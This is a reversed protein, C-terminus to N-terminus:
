IWGGDLRITQGTLYSPAEAISYLMKAAEKPNGMRDAPIGSILDAKEEESFCANMQTDFMGLSLANVQINSPALEKALAKTFAIVGGKSASYAVECSAGVEGWVSTVSIIKGSKKTIMHPLIEKTSYFLANFNTNMISHWQGLSMDTLLGVYSIAANHIICDITGFTDLTKQTIKKWFDPDGADGTVALVGIGQSALQQRSKELALPTHCCNIVVQWGHRGFYEATAYGIGRSSGTIIVTKM